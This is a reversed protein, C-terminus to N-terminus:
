RLRAADLGMPFIPMPIPYIPTASLAELLRALLIRWRWGRIATIAATLLWMVGEMPGARLFIGAARRTTALTKRSSPHLLSNEVKCPPGARWSTAMIVPLLVLARAGNGHTLM